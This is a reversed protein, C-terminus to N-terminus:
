GIRKRDDHMKKLEQRAKPDYVFLFNQCVKCFVSLRDKGLPQKMLDANNKEEKCTSCRVKDFNTETM